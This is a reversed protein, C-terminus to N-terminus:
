FLFFLVPNNVPRHFKGWERSDIAGNRDKDVEAFRKKWNEGLEKMSIKRDGDKDLKDFRDAKGGAAKFEDRDLAMDGNRDYQVVHGRLATEVESFGLKRDGNSDLDKFDGGDAYALGTMALFVLVPFFIKTM